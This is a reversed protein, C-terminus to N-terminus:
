ADNDGGTEDAECQKCNGNNFGLFKRNVITLEKKGTYTFDWRLDIEEYCGVFDDVNSIGNNYLYKYFDVTRKFRNNLIFREKYNNTKNGTELEYTIVLADDKYRTDLEVSAVKSIYIGPNITSKRSKTKSKALFNSITSM